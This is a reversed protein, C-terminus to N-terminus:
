TRVFRRKAITWKAPDSVAADFLARAAKPTMGKPIAFGDFTMGSLALKMRHDLARDGVYELAIKAKWDISWTKGTRAFRIAHDAVGDHGMLYIGFAAGERDAPLTKKARDVRLTTGDLKKWDLPKKATGVAIGAHDWKTSSLSCSGYNTWVIRSKWDTADLDEEDDASRRDGADYSASHIDFDFSLEGGPELRGSWVAKKIAHGKPWPNGPFWIRGKM